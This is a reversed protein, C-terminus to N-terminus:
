INFRHVVLAESGIWTMTKRKLWGILSGRWQVGSSGEERLVKEILGSRSAGDAEEQLVRTSCKQYLLFTQWQPDERSDHDMGLGCAGDDGEERGRAHAAGSAYFSAAGSVEARVVGDVRRLPGEVGHERHWRAVTRVGPTL